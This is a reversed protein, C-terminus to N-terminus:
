TSGTLFNMISVFGTKPGYAMAERIRALFTSGMAPDNYADAQHRPGGDHDGSRELEAQLQCVLQCVPHHDTRRFATGQITSRGPRLTQVGGDDAIPRTQVLAMWNQRLRPPDTKFPQM